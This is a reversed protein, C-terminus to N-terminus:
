SSDDQDFEEADEEAIPELSPSNSPKQPYIIPAPAVEIWCSMINRIEKAMSIKREKKREGAVWFLSSLFLDSIPPHNKLSRELLTKSFLQLSCSFVWIIIILPSR